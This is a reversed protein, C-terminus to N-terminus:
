SVRPKQMLRDPFLDLLESLSHIQMDPRITQDQELAKPNGTEEFLIGFAFGALKCGVLDKSNRNGVFVCSSPEVKLSGTAEWFIEPAPKRYKVSSSLIVVDLLNTWGFTQISRPIDLSSLSNSIVGLRYGRKKLENLVKNADPKPVTHGKREVWALTLESAIPGIQSGPIEPLMWRTWIETESEQVLNEKAWKGYAKYHNELEEWNLDTTIKGGLLELIRANAALQTPEHPERMRLTGNMDFLIVEIDHIRELSIKQHDDVPTVM